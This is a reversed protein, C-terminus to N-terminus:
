TNADTRAEVSSVARPDLFFLWDAVLTPSGDALELQVKQKLIYGGSAHHTAETAKVRARFKAGVPMQKVFRLRDFGYNLAYNIDVGGQMRMAQGCLKTLHAVQFFGQVITGDFGPESAARAPDLHVWEGEGDGCLNAYENVMNQSIVQWESTGEKGVWDALQPPLQPSTSSNM